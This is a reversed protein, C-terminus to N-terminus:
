GRNTPLDCTMRVLPLSEGDPLDAVTQQAAAFGLARYFPEGPLTAMLELSKFGSEAAASACAEFLRRGFGRRAFAPDVFFARIRAPDTEPNLLPDYTTKTQDGGYLTRRRSWGGAAALGGTGSDIAFYTGDLILQTDPGFVHTLASEIQAPSYYGSSLARVSKAILAVIAPLDELTALRISGEVDLGWWGYECRDHIRV